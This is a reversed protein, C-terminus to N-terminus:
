RDLNKNNKCCGPETGRDFCIEADIVYIMDNGRLKVDTVKSNVKNDNYLKLLIQYVDWKNLYLNYYVDTEKMYKLILKWLLLFTCVYQM